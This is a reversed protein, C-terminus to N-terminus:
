VGQYRCEAQMTEPKRKYSTVIRECVEISLHEIRVQLMDTCAGEWNAATCVIAFFMWM